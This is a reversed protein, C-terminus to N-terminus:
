RLMKVVDLQLALLLIYMKKIGAFVSKHNSKGNSGDHIHSGRKQHSNIDQKFHQYATSLESEYIHKYLEHVWYYFDINLETPRLLSILIYSQQISNMLKLSNPSIDTHNMDLPNRIHLLTFHTTGSSIWLVGGEWWLNKPKCGLRGWREPFELKTGYTEKFVRAEAVWRPIEM